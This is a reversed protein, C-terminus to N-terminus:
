AVTERRDALWSRLLTAIEEPQRDVLEVVDAALGGVEVDGLAGAPMGGAPLAAPEGLVGAKGSKRKSGGSMLFLAAAVVLLALGGVVKPILDLISGGAPAPDEASPVASAPFPVATVEITDGRDPQVGIAAAVLEELATVDPAAAGTASGDDVVVAVSVRQVTGPADLTKVLVRDIGYETTSERRDYDYADSEDVGLAEGDVGVSGVPAAGSGTFTEEITQQRLPTASEPTYTESETSREDFDLEARVVVSARGPGLVTALMQALDAALSAEFERTTRLRTNGVGSPSDEGASHLVTGDTAAVTVQDPELGAVSSSVLLVMADIEGQGPAGATDVLVSATVPQQNEAFLAEEPIVLHVTASDVSEMASLTRALEGELARQYDVRQRFDSVSLGQRDLLEYGEPVVSGELGGAALDARVQYVVDRPVLVRSGGGELRYPIGDAELTDIVESLRAPDVDAYLVTYSPTTVWRAFAVGALVVVVAAAGLSVQQTLTLGRASRRIGDILEM